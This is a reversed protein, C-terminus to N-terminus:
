QTGVTTQQAFFTTDIWPFVWLGLVVLVIGALATLIMVKLWMPGPLGRWLAGYM